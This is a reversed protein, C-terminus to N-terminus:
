RVPEDGSEDSSGGIDFGSSPAADLETGALEDVGARMYGSPARARAFKSTLWRVRARTTQRGAHGLPTSLDLSAASTAGAFSPPAASIAATKHDEAVDDEGLFLEMLLQRVVIFMCVLAIVVVLAASTVLRATRSNSDSYFSGLWSTLRGIVDSV